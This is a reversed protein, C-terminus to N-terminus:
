HTSDAQIDGAVSLPARARGVLAQPNWHAVAWKWVDKISSHALEPPPAQYLYTLTSVLAQPAATLDLPVARRSKSLKNGDPETLLPLHGYIPRPLGLAQQLEIQWPTSPLLDAGRVVRTAAQFADDVVVALQYSAIGDRREVVVDGPSAFRQAGLFLDDFHIPTDSVRFRLSTPGPRTPGDRCTGPYVQADDGADGGADGALTKRSCSCHFLRGDKQLRSLVERYAERRTSQYLVDGDWEFGFGELVRLMEDACGPIVRPTDLDEIRVLWVGGATRADLYSGVAALLSGLHLAGTPSPAFRGVPTVLPM